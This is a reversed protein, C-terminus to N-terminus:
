LFRFTEKKSKLLRSGFFFNKDELNQFAVKANRSFQLSVEYQFFCLSNSELHNFVTMYSPRSEAFLEM